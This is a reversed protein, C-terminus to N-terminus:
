FRMFGEPNVQTGNRFIEFHLHVGTSSGTTGMTGLTQGGSVSQGASVQLSPTMHAYLSEIGGGHDIRVYYGYSYHYGAYKVVGGKAARIPGGGGIDIGGHLRRNKTIPHIRYGYRSTVYGNAPRVWGGSNSNSSNSSNSSSSGSATTVDKGKASEAAIRREEAKRAEEARRKAEARARAEAAKRAKEAAIRQQEAKVLNNVRTAEAAVNNRQNIFANREESTLDFKETLIAVKNDMDRRQAVLNNRSVEMALKVEDAESKAMEVQAAKQEVLQKDSKQSEMINNNNQVVLNIVEIKGILDSLTDASLVIDIINNPSGATQVGRAQKALAIDRQAIKDKLIDIEVNLQKIEEELRAIEEEQTKIELLVADINKQIEVIENKIQTRESDLTNMEQEAEKINGQLQNSQQNLEQQRQQLENLTQSEADVSQVGTSFLSLFIATSSLISFM